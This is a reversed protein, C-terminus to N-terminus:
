REGAPTLYWLERFKDLGESRREEMDFVEVVAEPAPAQLALELSDKTPQDEKM